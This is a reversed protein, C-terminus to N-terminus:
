APVALRSTYAALETMMEEIGPPSPHGAAEWLRRNTSPDSTELVRNVAVPAECDHVTIDERGFARAFQRLLAAKTVTDRPVVHQLAPLELGSRIIGRVLKAFHLTSVGNWLHNTFGDLQAKPAQGRFWGLLYRPAGAEPGVISCRLHRLRPHSVEGLSKTKGYVDLADHADAERYHGRAGSFVCDTAIQLVSAGVEEARRAIQHPLLANIRVAREVQAPNDDKIFPKTIGIANVVWDHGELADLSEAVEPQADCATWRVQPLREQGRRLSAEDRVTGTVALGQDRALVDVLMSGLMGSAGLVVVRTM